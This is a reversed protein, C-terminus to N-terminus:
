ENTGEMNNLYNLVDKFTKVSVLKYSPEKITDYKLKASEYNEEPIFFIDATYLDATIVKQQEGGITTAEGKLNIGGTGLLCVDLM